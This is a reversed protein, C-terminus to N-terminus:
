LEFERETIVDKWLRQLLPLYGAFWNKNRHITTLHYYEVSWFSFGTPRENEYREQDDPSLDFSYIYTKPDSPNTFSYGCFRDPRGRLHFIEAPEVVKLDLYDNEPVDLVEMQLQMQVWYNKKVHSTSSLYETDTSGDFHPPRKYPVKFETLNIRKTKPNIALGDISAGLFPYKEHIVLNMHHLKLGHLTEYVYDAVPEYREGFRTAASGTFSCQDYPKAKDMIFENRSKFPNEDSACSADSASILNWRLKLWEESKQPPALKQLEYLKMLREVNQDFDYEEVVTNQEGDEFDFDTKLDPAVFFRKNDM